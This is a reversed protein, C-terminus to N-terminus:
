SVWRSRNSANSPSIEARVSIEDYTGTRIPPGSAGISPTTSTYLSTVAISACLAAAWIFIAAVAIVGSLCLISVARQLKPRRPMALAVGAGFITLLMPVPLLNNM